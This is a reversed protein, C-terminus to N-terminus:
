FSTMKSVFIECKQCFYSFCSFIHFHVEGLRSAHIQPDSPGLIIYKQYRSRTFFLDRFLSTKPHWKPANQDGKQYWFHDFVDGFYSQFFSRFFCSFFTVRTCALLTGKIGKFYCFLLSAALLCASLLCAALLSASWGPMLSVGSTGQPCPPPYFFYKVNISFVENM